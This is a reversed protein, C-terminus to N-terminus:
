GNVLEKAVQLATLSAYADELANHAGRDVGLLTFLEDSSNTGFVTFGITHTDIHRNGFKLHLGHESMLRHIFYRDFTAVNHGILSIVQKPEWYKLILEGIAMVAEEGTIGNDRLYEKTLGHVKEASATWDSKGDWEIEVYLDEVAQLTTSDVVILGMSVAQYTEGTTPDHSPDLSNFALGSTECDLALLYQSQGNWAM